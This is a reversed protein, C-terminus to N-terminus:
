FRTIQAPPLALYRQVSQALSIHGARVQEAFLGVWPGLEPLATRLEQRIIQALPGGHELFGSTEFARLAAERDYPVARLEPRWTGHEWHVLAYQARPDGNFPLGVAGANVVLTGDVRRLLPHHTHGCCFLPPPEPALMARLEDDTTFHYVGDRNHRPSAHAVLVPSGDPAALRLTLPLKAIADLRDGVQQATWRSPLMISAEIPNAAVDPLRQALVYDEHNGRLLPWGQAELLGLVERPQAGRNIFDGAVVVADPRVRALDDIVAALAHANNHIDSIVAFRAGTALSM